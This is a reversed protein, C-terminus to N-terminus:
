EQSLGNPVVLGHPGVPCDPAAAIGSRKSRAAWLVARTLRTSYQSVRLLSAMARYGYYRGRSGAVRASWYSDYGNGVLYPNMLATLYQIEGPDCSQRWAFARDRDPPQSARSKWWEGDASVEDRGSGLLQTPEYALGLFDDIRRVEAVPDEVLAEFRCILFRDPNRRRHREALAAARCWAQCQWWDPEWSFFPMGRCSRVVDRGDRIVWLFKACPYLNMLEPVALMHWPSKEGCRQKGRAQAYEVLMCRFLDGSSAPGKVFTAEVSENAIGNGNPISRAYELLAKHSRSRVAARRRGRHAPLFFSLEPSIAVRSHRNLITALLTTGSRPHGVIFIPDFGENGTAPQFTELKASELMNVVDTQFM